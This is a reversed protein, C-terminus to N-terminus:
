LTLVLSLYTILAADKNCHELVATRSHDAQHAHKLDQFRAPILENFNFADLVQQRFSVGIELLFATPAAHISVYSRIQM